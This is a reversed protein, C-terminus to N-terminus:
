PPWSEKSSHFDVVELSTGVLAALLFSSTNEHETEATNAIRARLAAEHARDAAAVQFRFLGGESLFRGSRVSQSFPDLVKQENPKRSDRDINWEQTAKRTVPNPVLIVRRNALVVVGVRAVEVVM